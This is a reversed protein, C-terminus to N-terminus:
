CEIKKLLEEKSKSNEKIKEELMNIKNLLKEERKQLEKILLEEMEIFYILFNYIYIKSIKKKMIKIMLPPLYIMM